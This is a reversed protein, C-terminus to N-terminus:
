SAVPGSDKFNVLSSDPHNIAISGSAQYVPTMKWSAIAVIVVITALCGLITWKRKILIRLYERLFSEQHLTWPQIPPPPSAFDLHSGPPVERITSASARVLPGSDMLM